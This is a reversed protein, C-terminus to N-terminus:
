ESARPTNYASHDFNRTTHETVSSVSRPPAAVQPYDQETTVRTHRRARSSEEALDILRSLQRILMGAIGLIGVTGFIFMLAFAKRDGSVSMLRIAGSFLAILSFTGFAAIAWFMGSLKRISLGSMEVQEGGWGYEGQRVNAPNAAPATAQSLNEGCRKCYRLGYANDAGCSTCHM